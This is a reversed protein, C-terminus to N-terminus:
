SSGVYCVQPQGIHRGACHFQVRYEGPPVEEGEITLVYPGPKVALFGARFKSESLETLVEVEFDAMGLVAFVVTPQSFPTPGCPFAVPSLSDPHECQFPMYAYGHLRVRWEVGGWVYELETHCESSYALNEKLVVGPTSEARLAGQPLVALSCAAFATAAAISNGRTVM